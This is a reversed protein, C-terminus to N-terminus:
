AGDDRWALRNPARALSKARSLAQTSRKATAGCSLSPASSVCSQGPRSKWRWSWKLEGLASAVLDQGDVQLSSAAAIALVKGSHRTRWEGLDQDLRESALGLNLGEFSAELEIEAEGDEIQLRILQLGAARESLSVFRLTRMSLSVEPAKLDKFESLLAGRRVDLTM